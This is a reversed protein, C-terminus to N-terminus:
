VNVKVCQSSDIHVILSIWQFVGALHNYITINYLEILKPVAERKTSWVGKQLTM